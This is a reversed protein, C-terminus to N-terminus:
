DQDKEDDNTTTQIKPNIFNRRDKPSKASIIPFSVNKGAYIPSDASSRTRFTDLRGWTTCCRGVRGARM